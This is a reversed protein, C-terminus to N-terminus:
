DASASLEPFGALMRNETESPHPTKQGFILLLAGLGGFLVLMGFMVYFSFRNKM